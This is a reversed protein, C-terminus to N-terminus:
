RGARRPPLSALAVLLGSRDRQILYFRAYENAGATFLVDVLVRYPTEQEAFIRLSSSSPDRGSVLAAQRDLDRLYKLALGLTPVDLGNPASLAHPDIERGGAADSPVIRAVADGEVFIADHTIVVTATDDPPLSSPPHGERSEDYADITLHYNAVVADASLAQPRWAAAPRERDLAKSIAFALIAVLATASLALAVRKGNPHTSM